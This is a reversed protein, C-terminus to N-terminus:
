RGPPNQEWGRYPAAAPSTGVSSARQVLAALGAEELTLREIKRRSGPEGAFRPVGGVCLITKLSGHVSM